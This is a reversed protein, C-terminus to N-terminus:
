SELFTPICDNNGGYFIEPRYVSELGSTVFLMQQSVCYVDLLAARHHNNYCEFVALTSWHVEIIAM